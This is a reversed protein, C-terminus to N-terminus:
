EDRSLTEDGASVIDSVSSVDALPYEGSSGGLGAMRRAVTRGAVHEVGCRALLARRLGEVIERREAARPLFYEVKANLEDADRFVIADVDDGFVERLDTKPDALAFGGSAICEVLKSPVGHYILGNAVCVNIKTAAFVSALETPRRVHERFRLNPHRELLMRSDPDAFMGFIQVPHEITTMLELRVATTLAFWVAFLYYDWYEARSPVLGWRDREADSLTGIEDKFAEWGTMSLDRLKLTTIRQTLEAFFPEAAFDSDAVLGEYINGCFGVDYRSDVDVRGGQEIFPAYTTVPHWEIQDSRALGLEVVAAIHGTDFSFHQTEPASMIARFDELVDADGAGENRWGLRGGRTRISWLALGGLPDDWLMTAPAAISRRVDSEGVCAALFYNMNSATVFDVDLNVGRLDHEPEVVAVDTGARRLAAVTEDLRSRWLEDFAGGSAPPALFAARLLGGTRGGGGGM